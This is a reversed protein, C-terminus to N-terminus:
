RPSVTTARRDSGRPAPCASRPRCARAQARPPGERRPGPRPPPRARRPAARRAPRAAAKVRRQRPRVPRSRAGTASGTSAASEFDTARSPTPTRTGGPAGLTRRGGCRGAERPRGDPSARHQGCATAATRIASAARAGAREDASSAPTRDFRRLARRRAARPVVFVQTAAAAASVAPDFSGPM